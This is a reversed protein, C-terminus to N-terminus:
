IEDGAIGFRRRLHLKGYRGERQALAQETVNPVLDAVRGGALRGLYPEFAVRDHIRDDDIRKVLRAVGAHLDVKHHAAYAAQAGLNGAQGLPDADLRDDPSKQLVAADVA